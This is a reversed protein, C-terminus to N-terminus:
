KETEQKADLVKANGKFMTKGEAELRAIRMEVEARLPDLGKLNLSAYGFYRLHSRLDLLGLMDQVAKQDIDITKM